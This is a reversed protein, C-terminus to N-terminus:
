PKRYKVTKKFGKRKVLSEGILQNLDRLATRDTINFMERYSKNTFVKGENYIMELCGMQRKNLHTLDTTREKPIDPVLGLIKEGPGYFIVKFFGGNTSFIPKKLGHEKMWRKM